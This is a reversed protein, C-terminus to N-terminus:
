QRSTLRWRLAEIEIKVRFVIADLYHAFTNFLNPQPRLTEDAILAYTTFTHEPCFAYPAGMNDVYLLTPTFIHRAPVDASPCYFRPLFHQGCVQCILM